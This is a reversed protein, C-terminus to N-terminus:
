RLQWRVMPVTFGAATETPQIGGLAHLEHRDAHGSSYIGGGYYGASNESLISNTVTLRGNYSCIGGGYWEASNGLLVSNTVTLTGYDSYIGGGADALGGTITMGTLSTSVGREVRFVRSADEADFALLEAGPGEIRVDGHIALEGDEVLITGHLGEAFQIIDPGSFSGAPADGVPQNRNAAELAELFTLVGDESISMELSTVVYTQAPDGATAGEVAGIDVAGDQIRPDGYIDESLPQATADVALTNEGANLAPSGPLLYYGWRGNDLETWDSLRPDIPSTSTGVLNGGDGAVLSTQGTGDGVLNYSGSLTGADHYIDPGPPDPTELWM